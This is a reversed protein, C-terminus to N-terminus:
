RQKITAPTSEQLHSTDIKKTMQTDSTYEQEVTVFQMMLQVTQISKFGLRVAPLQQGPTGPGPSKQHEHRPFIESRHWTNHNQCYARSREAMSTYGLCRPLEQPSDDKLDPSQAELKRSKQLFNSRQVPHKLVKSGGGGCGFQAITCIFVM